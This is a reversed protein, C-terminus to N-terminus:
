GRRRAVPVVRDPGAVWVRDGEDRAVRHGGTFEGFAPMVLHGPRAWFAPLRMADGRRGGLRWVPHVHGALAYGRPDDGPHHRLVFPGDAHPEDLWVLRPDLRPRAEDRDHNGACVEVSLSAHADLFGSLAALWSEGEGPVDHMLDGLVVLREVRTTAALRALRALGRESVGGPVPVGGRGFAHEKGLHVDAVFLTSRAPWCLARDPHLEVREGALTALTPAPAAPLSVRVSRARVRRQALCLRALDAPTPAPRASM